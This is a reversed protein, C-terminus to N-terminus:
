LGHAKEQQATKIQQTLGVLARHKWYTTPGLILASQRARRYFLHCDSEWTFGIGGHTQINEQAAFSLAETAAIRAGAAALFLTEPDATLAWAGYYAHARAIENKAYVNALKHKIAQYSGIPRGFSKRALAYDRAMWLARDAAFIQEFALLIAGRAQIIEWSRWDADGLPEAPANSFVLEAVPRSPDLSELARRRVDTSTLDCLALMPAGDASTTLVIAVDAVMGDLVPMKAGSLTEHRFTSRITNPTLEVGSEAAAWTGIVTGGALGPLWRARQKATGFLRVAESCMYTSSLSPVPALSRGIEAAAICTALASFDLGGNETPIVISQFGLSALGSWARASYPIQGALASRADSTADLADLMRRVQEGFAKQEDSFDFNM